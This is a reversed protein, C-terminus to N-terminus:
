AADVLKDLDAHWEIRRVKGFTTLSHLCESSEPGGVHVAISAFGYGPQLGNTITRMHRRASQFALLGINAKAMTAERKMYRALQLETPTWERREVSIDPADDLGQYPMDPSDDFMPVTKIRM